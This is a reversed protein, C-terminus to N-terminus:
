SLNLSVTVFTMTASVNFYKMTISDGGLSNIHM